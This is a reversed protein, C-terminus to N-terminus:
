KWNELAFEVFEALSDGEEIGADSAAQKFASKPELGLDKKLWENGQNFAKVWKKFKHEM